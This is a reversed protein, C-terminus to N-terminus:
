VKGSIGSQGLQWAVPRGTHAESISLSQACTVAGLMNIRTRSTLSLDKYVCSLYEAQM